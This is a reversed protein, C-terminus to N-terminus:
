IVKFGVAEAVSHQRKDLTVFCVEEPERAVYLASAVHWLDAGRLYGVRLIATIESELPRDPFVWNLGSLLSQPLDVGERSFASRLEAELLNSSLLHPIKMLRNAMDMGVSEDFAVAILASNDVYAVTM